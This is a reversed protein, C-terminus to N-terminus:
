APLSRLRRAQARSKLAQNLLIGPACLALLFAILSAWWAIGIVTFVVPALLSFLGVRLAWKVFLRVSRDYDEAVWPVPETDASLGEIESM